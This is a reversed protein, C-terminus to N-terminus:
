QQARHYNPVISCDTHVAKIIIIIIIIISITSLACLNFILFVYFVCVLIFWMIM